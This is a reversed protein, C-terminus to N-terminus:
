LMGKLIHIPDGIRYIYHAHAIAWRRYHALLKDYNDAISQIFIPDEGPKPVHKPCRPGPDCYIFFPKLEYFAELVETRIDVPTPHIVSYIPQSVCPHRVFITDVMNSYRDIRHHIEEFSKAPGESEQINLGHISAFEVALTSKGTSDIGEIVIM